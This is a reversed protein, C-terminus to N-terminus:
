HQSMLSTIIVSLQSTVRLRRLLNYNCVHRALETQLYHVVCQLFQEEFKTDGDAFMGAVKENNRCEQCSEAGTAELPHIVVVIRFIEDRWRRTLGLLLSGDHLFIEGCIVVIELYSRM